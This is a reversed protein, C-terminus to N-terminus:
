HHKTLPMTVMSFVFCQVSPTDSWTIRWSAQAKSDTKLREQKEENCDDHGGWVDKVIFSDYAPETATVAKTWRLFIYKQIKEFHQKEM